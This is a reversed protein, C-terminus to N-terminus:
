RWGVWSGSSDDYFQLGGSRWVGLAVPEEVGAGEYDISGISKGRNDFFTVQRAKIDLVAFNGLRDAALDVPRLLGSAVLEEAAGSDDFLLIRKEREDIAAVRRGNWCLASLGRGEWLTRITDRGPEIRGLREGPRDLLWFGGRNDVALDAAEEYDQVSVLRLAPRNLDLRWVWRDAVAYAQGLDNFAVATPTAEFAWSHLLRGDPGMLQVSNEKRDAILAGTASVAFAALARVEVAHRAPTGRLVPHRGLLSRVALEKLELVQRADVSDLSSAEELWRAAAAPDGLRLMVRALGLRARGAAAGATGDVVLRQYAALAPQYEGEQEALWGLAYRAARTWESSAPNTAVSLLDYRAGSADYSAGAELRLLARYYTAEAGRDAGTLEAANSVTGLARKVGAPEIRGLEEPWRAPANLKTLEVWADDALLGAPDLEVVKRLAVAAESSGEAALRRAVRFQREAADPDAAFSGGGSAAGACALLCVLLRRMAPTV